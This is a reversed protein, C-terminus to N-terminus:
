YVSRGLARGVPQSAGIQLCSVNQVPYDRHPTPPQELYRQRGLCKLAHQPSTNHRLIVHQFEAPTMGEPWEFSSPITTEPFFSKFATRFMQPSMSGLELQLDVRGPRLLAPDLKDRMNTTIVLVRGDSEAVGDIANLLGGLTLKETKEGSKTANRSWAAAVTDIDELLFLSRPGLQCVMEKLEQDDSNVLDLTYLGLDYRACIARVLSTKGTGPPGSLCIGTRYPVGHKRYWEKSGHFWDLHGFLAKSNDDSLFVSSARRKIQAALLTWSHWRPIYLRTTNAREISERAQALLERLLKQDRGLCTLVIEEIDYDKNEIRRRYFWCLRRKYFFYHRGFGASIDKNRARLSRFKWAFGQSEIWNTLALFEDERSTVELSTTFQRTVVEIISKPLDKTLFTLMAAGWLGLGTTLIPNSTMIHEALVRITM